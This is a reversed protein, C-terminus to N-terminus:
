TGRKAEWSAGRVASGAERQNEAEARTIPSPEHSSDREKATETSFKGMCGVQCQGLLQGLFEFVLLLSSVGFLRFGQGRELLAPGPFHSLMETPSGEPISIVWLNHINLPAILHRQCTFEPVLLPHKATQTERTRVSTTNANPYNERDGVKLIVDLRLVEVASLTFLTFNINRV